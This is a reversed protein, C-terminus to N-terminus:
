GFQSKLSNIVYFDFLFNYNKYLLLLDYVLFWLFDNVSLSEGDFNNFFVIINDLFLKLSMNLFVENYDLELNTVFSTLLSLLYFHIFKAFHKNSPYYFM